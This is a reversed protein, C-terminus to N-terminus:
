GGLNTNEETKDELSINEILAVCEYDEVQFDLNKSVFDEIRNRKPNNIISRRLTGKQFYVSLNDLRTILVANRPFFPVRIAKLGGVQKQSILTQSALEDTPTLEKNILNFYKDDVLRRGCIAVLATDDAYVDHIMNDVADKVLADLNKYDQGKGVKIKNETDAGDMVHDPAEERIHQLWGKAVDQLLPYKTRNSNKARHTGNFGMMMINLAITKQTHSALKTQFDPKHRWSDITSWKQHTDFDVKECNYRRKTLNHIDKTEREKEDTDTTSAIAQAVGLGVLEGQMQDVPQTNICKLFDSKHIVNDIIKQEITPQVNFGEKVDEPTVGNLQAVQAIYGTFKQKTENHM